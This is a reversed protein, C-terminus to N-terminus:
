LLTRKRLRIGCRVALSRGETIAVALSKRLVDNGSPGSEAEVIDLIDMHILPSTCVDQPKSGPLGCCRLFAATVFLIERGQLPTLLTIHSSPSLSGEKRFM